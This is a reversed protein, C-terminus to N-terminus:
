RSREGLAAVSGSLWSRGSESMTPAMADLVRRAEGCLERVRAEVRSRAGSDEMARVVAELDVERADPKGFVRALLDEVRKDGRLEAILATRKGQRIDNWVPKGTASPDGFVGLLDDRLQFAIGLPRGFRELEACRADDAGALAAGLLLPGTVTYSATKLAHITEVSPLGASGGPLSGGFVSPRAAARMEALQGTVVEVQIRAFARSARLVREAPLESELLAEQAYGSALDGALIAAADGLARAGLKQRLLVHVSPGGRRVDDDDMWDDHILLYTQLLEVAMMAPECASWSCAGATVPAAASATSRAEFGAAVLAARMRKGGRLALDQVASAVTGVEESIQTAAAVRPRLWQGLREDIRARVDGLLAGFDHAGESSPAAREDDNSATM